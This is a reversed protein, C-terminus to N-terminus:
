AKVAFYPQLQQQMFYARAHMPSDQVFAVRSQNIGQAYYYYYYYYISELEHHALYM